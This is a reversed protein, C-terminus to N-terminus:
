VAQAAAEERCNKIHLEYQILGWPPSPISLELFHQLMNVRLRIINLSKNNIHPFLVPQQFKWFWLVFGHQLTGSEKRQSLERSLPNYLSRELARNHLQILYSGLLDKNRYGLRVDWDFM